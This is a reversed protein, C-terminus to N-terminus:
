RQIEKSIERVTTEFLPLPVPAEEIGHTVKPQVGGMYFGLGDLDRIVLTGTGDLSPQVRYYSQSLATLYVIGDTDRDLFLVAQQGERFVADGAIQIQEGTLAGRMQRITLSQGKTVDGKYVDLVKLRTDTRPRGDKDHVFVRSEGVQVRVVLDSLEIHEALTLYRVVTARAAPALALLAVLLASALVRRPNPKM